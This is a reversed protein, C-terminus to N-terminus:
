DSVEFVFICTEHCCYRKIFKETRSQQLGACKRYGKLIRFTGPSFGRLLLQNALNLDTTANIVAEINTTVEIISIPQVSHFTEAITGTMSANIAAICTILNAYSQKSVCVVNSVVKCKWTKMKEIVIYNIVKLFIPTCIEMHVQCYFHM